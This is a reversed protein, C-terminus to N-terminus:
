IKGMMDLLIFYLTLDAIIHVIIPALLGKSRLRIAGLFIGYVFAMAVGIAGRPFGQIHAIGFIAAQLLTVIIVNGFIKGFSDWLIGRYISEEVISNFLAFAIGVVVLTGLTQNPILSLLDGLNPKTVAAWIYLAVSSVIAVAMGGLWTYKDTSGIYFWRSRKKLVPFIRFLLAYIALPIIFFLGLRVFPIPLMTTLFAMLFFISPGVLPSAKKSFYFIVGLLVVAMLWNYLQISFHLFLGSLVVLIFIIGNIYSITGPKFKPQDSKQLTRPEPM